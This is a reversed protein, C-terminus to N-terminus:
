LKKLVGMCGECARAPEWRWGFCDFWALLRSRGCLPKHKHQVHIRRM